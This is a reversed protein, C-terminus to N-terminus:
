KQFIQPARGFNGPVVPLGARGSAGRQRVVLWGVVSAVVLGVIVATRKM